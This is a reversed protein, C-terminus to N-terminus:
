GAVIVTGHFESFRAALEGTVQRHPSGRPDSETWPTMYVESDQFRSM